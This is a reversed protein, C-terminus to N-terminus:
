ELAVTLIYNKLEINEAEKKQPSIFINKIKKDSSLYDAFFQRNLELSKYNISIIKTKEFKQNKYIELELQVEGAWVCNVGEPCRSDSIIKLIKIEYDNGVKVKSTANILVENENSTPKTACSLIFFLAIIITYYKM